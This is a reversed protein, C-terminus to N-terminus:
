VCCTNTGSACKCIHVYVDYFCDCNQNDEIHEYLVVGTSATSSTQQTNVWLRHLRPALPAM